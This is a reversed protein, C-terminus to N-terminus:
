VPVFLSIYTCVCVCMRVCVRGHVCFRVSPILKKWSVYHDVLCSGIYLIYIYIYIYICTCYVYTRLLSGSIYLLYGLCDSVSIQGISISIGINFSYFGTYIPVIM